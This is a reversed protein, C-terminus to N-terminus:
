DVIQWDIPTKHHDILYQNAKSFPKSGFFGRYSSLPSPHASEIIYHKSKDILSRKKQAHGGWLIFVINECQDNIERITADTFHHWGINSHSGAKSAEVSLSTNLLFVGQKAWDVLSGHNPIKFGVIDDALEKYINRLSPPIPINKHVSFALGNAQNPGHYPDQGLIVVKINEVPTLKYAAFRENDPPYVTINSQIAKALHQTIGSFYPKATETDLFSQWSLSTMKTM